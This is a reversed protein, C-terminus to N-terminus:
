IIYLEDGAHLNAYLDCVGRIDHYGRAGHRAHALGGELREAGFTFEYRANVGHTRRQRAALGVHRPRRVRLLLDDVEGLLPPSHYANSHEAVKPQAFTHSSDHYEGDNVEGLLPSSHYANDISRNKERSGRSSQKFM